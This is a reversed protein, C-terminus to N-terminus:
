PGPDSRHSDHGGARRQLRGRDAEDLRAELHVSSLDPLEMITAGPWARDGERFEGAPRGVARESPLEHLVNVM